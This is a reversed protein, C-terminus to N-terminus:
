RMSSRQPSPAVKEVVFHTKPPRFMAPRQPSTVDHTMEEYSPGKSRYQADTDREVRNYSKGISTHQDDDEVVGHRHGFYGVIHKPAVPSHLPHFRSLSSPTTTSSSPSSMMRSSSSSLRGRQEQEQQQKQQQQRQVLERRKEQLFKESIVFQAEQAACIKHQTGPLFGTYGVAASGITTRGCHTGKDGAFSRKESQLQRLSIKPLNSM